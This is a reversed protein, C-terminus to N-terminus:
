LNAELHARVRERFEAIEPCVQLLGSWGGALSHMAKKRGKGVTGLWGKKTVFPDWFREKPDCEARVKALGVDLDKRNLALAWVEVEEIALVGVLKTPHEKVRAALKATHTDRDCDRDVALIFVDIMPNDRVIQEVVQQNLAQSASSLHPDRLVEVRHTRELDDFVKEVIPKLIHQDLTPDEPIILVRM